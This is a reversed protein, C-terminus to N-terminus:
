EQFVIKLQEREVAEFLAQFNGQGFGQAQNRREIFELFFTPEDFVPQTFVQMLLSESSSGDAKSTRPAYDGDILIEQNAIAQWESETLNVPVYRPKLNTYYAKPIALFSVGRSRLQAVTQILNSSRLALHQIGSGRNVEIFQQIQSDPDTPENINFQVNGSADVLAKSYLGSQETQINFTQQIKFGFLAQYLDVAPTLQNAAVNLVIHDIHDIDTINTTGTPYITERAQDTEILSHRLSNWGGIQASKVVGRDSRDVKLSQWINLSLKHAQALILEIDGVQFALDVVGPPHFKLHTAVPSSANLPSSIKLIVKNNAIAETATHSNQNSYISEFGLHSIFWNRTATASRVYFHVHDIKM